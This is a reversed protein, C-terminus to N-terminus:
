LELTSELYDRVADLMVKADAVDQRAEEESLAGAIDYDGSQRDEFL